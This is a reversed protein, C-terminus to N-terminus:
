RSEDKLAGNLVGSVRIAAQALRMKAIPAAFRQYDDALKDGSKLASAQGPPKYALKACQFSEDAWAPAWGQAWERTKEPTALREIEVRL